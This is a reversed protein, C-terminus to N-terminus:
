FLFLPNSLDPLIPPKFRLYRMQVVEYDFASRKMSFGHIAVIPVCTFPTSSAMMTRADIRENNEDFWVCVDANLSVKLSTLPNTPTDSGLQARAQDEFVRLESQVPEIIVEWNNEDNDDLQRVTARSTDLQIMLPCNSSEGLNMFHVFDNVMHMYMKSMLLDAASVVAM